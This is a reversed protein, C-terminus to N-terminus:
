ARTVLLEFRKLQDCRKAALARSLWDVRCPTRWRGPHIRWISAFANCFSLWEALARLSSVKVSRQDPTRGVAALSAGNSSLDLLSQSGTFVDEIYARVMAEAALGPFSALTSSRM